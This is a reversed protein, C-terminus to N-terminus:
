LFFIKEQFGPKLCIAVPELKAIFTKGSAGCLFHFDVEDLLQMWFAVSLV